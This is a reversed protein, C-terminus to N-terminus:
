ELGLIEAIREIEPGSTQNGIVFGGSNTIVGSKVFSSGFNVTARDAKVKLVSEAIEKEKSKIEKHCVCGNNNAVALSGVLDLGAIKSIEVKVKFFDELDDKHKKLKESIICGNDNVLILNGLATYKGKLVLVQTHMEINKIEHKYAIEPVVIGNSNGACFIGALNTGAVTSIIPKVDLCNKIKAVLDEPIHGLLVFQETAFGYLGINSDGHFGSILISM